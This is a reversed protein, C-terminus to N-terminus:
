HKAKKHVYRTYIIPVVNWLVIGILALKLLGYLETLMSDFFGNNMSENLQNNVLQKVGGESLAKVQATLHKNKEIHKATEGVGWGIAAGGAATAPGGLSGVAAGGTAGVAPYFSAKSCSTFFSGLIIFLFCFWGLTGFRRM